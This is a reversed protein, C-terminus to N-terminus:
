PPAKLRKVATRAPWAGIKMRPTGAPFARVVVGLSNPVEPAGQPIRRSTGPQDLSVPQITFRSGLQDGGSSTREFLKVPQLAAEIPTDSAILFPCLPAGAM